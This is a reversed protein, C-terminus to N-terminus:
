IISTPDDDDDDVDMRDASDGNASPEDNSKGCIEDDSPPKRANPVNLGPTQSGSPNGTNSTANQNGSSNGDNSTSKQNGSGSPQGDNANHDQAGGQNQSSTSQSSAADLPALSVWRGGTELEDDITHIRGIWLIQEAEISGHVTHTTCYDIGELTTVVGLAMLKGRQLSWRALITALQDPDHFFANTEEKRSKRIMASENFTM